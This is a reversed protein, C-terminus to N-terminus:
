FGFGSKLAFYNTRLKSFQGQPSYGSHYEAMVRYKKGWGPLKGSEYGLAVTSDFDFGNDQWHRIHAAMFFQGLLNKCCDRIHEKRLEWGYEVFLPDIPHERHSNVVVGMGGYLRVCPNVHWSAFFDLAEMSANKRFAAPNPLSLLFEDGLHSSRHWFRFRFSWDDQAYTLPYGLYYDNDILPYSNKGADFVAWVGAEWDLQLDGPLCWPHRLRFLPFIDGFGIAWAHSVSLAEDNFRYSASYAVTRPDAVFPAFLVTNQPLWIFRDCPDCSIEHCRECEVKVKCVCPHDLIFSKVACIFPTRRPLGRVTAVREHVTITLDHEPYHMDLLAQLYGELFEEDECRSCSHPPVADTRDGMSTGHLPYEGDGKALLPHFFCFLAALLFGCYRTM